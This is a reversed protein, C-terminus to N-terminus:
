YNFTEGMVELLKETDNGDFDPLSESDILDSGPMRGQYINLEDEQLLDLQDAAVVMRDEIRSLGLMGHAILEVNEPPLALALAPTHTVGVRRAVNGNDVVYDPFWDEAEGQPAAGTVSFAVVNIGTRNRLNKIIRAMRQSYVDDGYWFWIAGDRNNVRDAIDGLITLQQKETLRNAAGGATKRTMEDLQPHKMSVERASVAFKNAKDMMVKHIFFYAAVNEDTPDDIARNLVQEM